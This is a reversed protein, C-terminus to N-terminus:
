DASSTKQLGSGAATSKILRVFHNGPGIALEVTLHVGSAFPQQDVATWQPVTGSPFAGTEQLEFGVATALWTIREKNDAVAAIWWTM